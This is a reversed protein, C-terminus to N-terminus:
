QLRGGPQTTTGPTTNPNGGPYYVVPTPGYAPTQECCPGNSPAPVPAQGPTNAMKGPAQQYVSYNYNTSQYQEAYNYGVDGGRFLVRPRIRQFFNRIGSFLGGAREKVVTIMGGGGFGGKTGVCGKECPAGMQVPAQVPVGMDVQAPTPGGLSFTGDTGATLRTGSAFAKEVDEASKLNIADKITVVEVHASESDAQDMPVRAIMLKPLSSEEVSAKETEKSAKADLDRHPSQTGCSALVVASVVVGLRYFVQM